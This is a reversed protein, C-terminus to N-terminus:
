QSWNISSRFKSGLGVVTPNGAVPQHTDDDTRGHSVRESIGTTDHTCGCAMIEDTGSADIDEIQTEEQPVGFIVIETM